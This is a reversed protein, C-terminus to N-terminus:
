LLQVEFLSVRAIEPGGLGHNRSIETGRPLIRGPRTCESMIDRHGADAGVGGAPQWASRAVSEHSIVAEGRQFADLISGGVRDREHFRTEVKSRPRTAAGRGQAAIIGGIQRKPAVLAGEASM